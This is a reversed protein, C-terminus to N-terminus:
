IIIGGKSRAKLKKAKEMDKEKTQKRAEYKEALEFVKDKSDYHYVRDSLREGPEVQTENVDRVMRELELYDRAGNDPVLIVEHTSSPLLFFDGGLKEAAMDMFGPYAIVGAGETRDKTSAVYMPVSIEVDDPVGLESALESPDIGMMEALIDQMGIIESPRLDPAYILADNFLQEESIGFQALMQNNILITGIGGEADGIVFRCVLSMDEINKHPINELMEANRDTAVVQVALREKMLDYNMLEEVNVQPTHSMGDEVMREAMEVVEDFDMGDEYKQFLPGCDLNMGIQSDEKRIAFGDYDGRTLREVHTNEFTYSEGTKQYMREGLEEALSDRFEEFDM